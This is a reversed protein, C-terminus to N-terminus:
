PLDHLVQLREELRAAEEVLDIGFGGDAGDVSTRRALPDNAPTLAAVLEAHRALLDHEADVAPQAVNRVPHVDSAFVRELPM